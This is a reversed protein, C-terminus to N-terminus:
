LTARPCVEKGDSAGTVKVLAGIAGVTAGSGVSGVVGGTTIGPAGVGGGMSGVAAGTALLAGVKGSGVVNAGIEFGGGDGKGVTGVVGSGAAEIVNAGRAPDGANAGTAPFEDAGTLEGTVSAGAPAFVVCAGIAPVVSAGTAPIVSAGTAPVGVFEVFVGVGPDVPVVRSGESIGDAPAVAVSAGDVPPVNSGEEPVVASGVLM